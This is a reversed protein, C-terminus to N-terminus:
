LAETLMTRMRSFIIDPALGSAEELMVVMAGGVTSLATVLALSSDVEALELALLRSLETATIDGDFSRVRTEFTRIAGM